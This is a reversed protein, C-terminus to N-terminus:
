KIGHFCVCYWMTNWVELIWEDITSWFSNITKDSYTNLLQVPCMSVTPTSDIQRNNQCQEYSEKVYLWGRRVWKYRYDVVNVELLEVTKLANVLKLCLLPTLQHHSLSSVYILIFWLATLLLVHNRARAPLCVTLWHHSCYFATVRFKLPASVVPTHGCAKIYVYVYLWM